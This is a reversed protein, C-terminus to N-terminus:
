DQEVIEALHFSHEGLSYSLQGPPSHEVLAIWKASDPTMKREAHQIDHEPM